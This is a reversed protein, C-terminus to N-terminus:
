AGHSALHRAIQLPRPTRVEALPQLRSCKQCFRLREGGLVFSEERLHSVCFGHKMAYKFSRQCTVVPQTDRTTPLLASCVRCVGPTAATGGSAPPHTGGSGTQQGM